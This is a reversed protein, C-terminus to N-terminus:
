GAQLLFYRRSMEPDARDLAVAELSGRRAQHVAAAHHWWRRRCANLVFV